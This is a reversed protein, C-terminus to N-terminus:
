NIVYFYVPMTQEMNERMIILCKELVNEVIHHMGQIKKLLNQPSKYFKDVPNEWSDGCRLCRYEHSDDFTDSPEITKSKRALIFAEM